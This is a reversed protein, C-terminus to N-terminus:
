ASLNRMTLFVEAQASFVCPQSSPFSENLFCRRKRPSFRKDEIGKTPIKSVGGSARLFGVLLLDIMAQPLFVEAQASFVFTPRKSGYTAWFCRRKRPSFRKGQLFHVWAGSVGGSARLFGCVCGTLGADM